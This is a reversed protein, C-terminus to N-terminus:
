NSVALRYGVGRVTDIIVNSTAQEFKARIHRVHVDITRSDGLFNSGWVREMLEHRTVVQGNRDALGLLIQFEIQTLPIDQDDWQVKGRVPDIVLKGHRIAEPYRLPDVRRLISRIRALLERPRFPKALYDDAGLELGTVQDIEDDLATLMLIGTAKGSSRVRRCVDYGHMDPLLLDLVILDPEWEMWVQLGQGGSSALRVEFGAEKLQHELLEQIVPDDEIVLLKHNM